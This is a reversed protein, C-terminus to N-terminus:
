IVIITSGDTSIYASASFSNDVANVPLGINLFTHNGIQNGPIIMAIDYNISYADLSLVSNILNLTTM